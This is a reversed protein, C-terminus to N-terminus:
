SFTVRIFSDRSAFKLPRDMDVDSFQEGSNESILFFNLPRSSGTHEGM